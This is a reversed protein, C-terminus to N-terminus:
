QHNEHTTLELIHCARNNAWNFIERAPKSKRRILEIISNDPLDVPQWVLGGRGGKSKALAGRIWSDPPIDYKIIKGAWYADENGWAIMEQSFHIGIRDCICKLIIEPPYLHILEHVYPVVAVGATEAEEWSEQSLSFSLNFSDWPFEDWNWQWMRQWSIATAVPDRFTPIFTTKKPLCGKKLVLALSDVWEAPNHLNPGVTEKILHVGDGIEMRDKLFTLPTSPNLGERGAILRRAIAKIPQIHRTIGDPQIQARGIATALAGTNTRNIGGVLIVADPNGILVRGELEDNLWAPVLPRIEGLRSQEVSVAM